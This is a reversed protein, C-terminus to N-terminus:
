TLESTTLNALQERKVVFREIDPLHFRLTKLAITDGEDALVALRELVPVVHDQLWMCPTDVDWQETDVDHELYDALSEAESESVHETGRDLCGPMTWCTVWHSVRNASTIRDGEIYDRFVSLLHANCEDADEPLTEPDVDAVDAGVFETGINTELEWADRHYHQVTYATDIISVRAPHDLMEQFREAITNASM